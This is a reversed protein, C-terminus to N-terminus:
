IKRLRDEIWIYGQSRVARLRRALGPDIGLMKRRLRSMMMAVAARSGGSVAAGEAAPVETTDGRGPCKLAYYPLVRGARCALLRLASAEGVSLELGVEIGSLPGIGDFERLRILRFGWLRYTARDGILEPSWYRFLRAELELWSWGSRMFDSAGAEFCDLALTSPGYVIAPLGLPLNQNSLYTECPLVCLQWSGSELEKRSPLTETRDVRLFPNGRREGTQGTTWLFSPEGGSLLLVRIPLAGM